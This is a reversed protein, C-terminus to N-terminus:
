YKEHDSEPTGYFGYRGVQRYRGGGIIHPTYKEFGLM